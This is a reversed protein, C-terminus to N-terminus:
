TAKLRKLFGNIRELTYHDVNPNKAARKMTSILLERKPTEQTGNIVRNLMWITLSTPKRNEIPTQVAANLDRQAANVKLHTRRDLAIVPNKQSATTSLREKAHGHAKLNAHQWLEHGELKDSIVSEQDILLIRILRLIGM